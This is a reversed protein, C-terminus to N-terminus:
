RRRAYRHGRPRRARKQAMVSRSSASRWREPSAQRPRRREPRQLVPQLGVPSARLPRRQLFIAIVSGLWVADGGELEGGRRARRGRRRASSPGARASHADKTKASCAWACVSASTLGCIGLTSSKTSVEPEISYLVDPLTNGAHLYSAVLTIGFPGTVESFLRQISRTSTSVPLM